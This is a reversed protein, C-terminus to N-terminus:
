RQIYNRVLVLLIETNFNFCFPLTFGSMIEQRRSLEWRSGGFAHIKKFYVIKFTM